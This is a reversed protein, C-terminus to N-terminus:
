WPLKCKYKEIKKHPYEAWFKELKLTVSTVRKFKRILKWKLTM